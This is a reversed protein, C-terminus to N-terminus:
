VVEALIDRLADQVCESDFRKEQAGNVGVCKVGMNTIKQVDVVVETDHLYVIHTIFASTPYSSSAADTGYASNLTRVIANIFDVAAYGETERDNKSNLM